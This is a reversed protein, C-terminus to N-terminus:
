YLINLNSLPQDVSLTEDMVLRDSLENAIHQYVPETLMCRVKQTKVHDKGYVEMYVVLNKRFYKYAVEYQGLVEFAIGTNKYIKGILMDYEGYAEKAIKEAEGYIQFNLYTTKPRTGSKLIM